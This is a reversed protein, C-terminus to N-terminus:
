DRNRHCRSMHNALVNYNKLQKDCMTCSVQRLAAHSNIYHQKRKAIGKVEKITNGCLNCEYRLDEIHSFSSIIQESFVNFLTNMVKNAINAIFM